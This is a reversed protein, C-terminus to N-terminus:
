FNKHIYNFASRAAVSGSSAATIVQKWPFDTVDGAAFVGDLSTHYLRDVIIEGFKNLELELHKALENRPDLGIAIFVGKLEVKTGNDLLVYEVSNTGCIEKVNVGTIIEINSFKKLKDINAPEARLKSRVFLYVKKSNQALIIADSVASDGGGVIGVEKNRFFMGDCTACYSVGKGRFTNESEIGLHRHKTGTALIVAKAKIEDNSSETKIIFYKGKKEVSIVSDDIIEVGNNRAHEEFKKALEFGNISEFGPFNCVEHVSAILGGQEKVIVLTKLNYRSAYVGAPYGASGGGIIVLDYEM